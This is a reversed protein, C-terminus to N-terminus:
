NVVELRQLHPIISIYPMSTTRDYRDLWASDGSLIDQYYNSWVYAFSRLYSEHLNAPDDPGFDVGVLKRGVRRDFERFLGISSLGSHKRMVHSDQFGERDGVILLAFKPRLFVANWKDIAKVEFDYQKIIQAFHIEICSLLDNATHIM